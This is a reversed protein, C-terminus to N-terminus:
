TTTYVLHENVLWPVRSCMPRQHLQDRAAQELVREAPREREQSGSALVSAGTSKETWERGSWSEAPRKAESCEREKRVEPRERELRRHPWPM